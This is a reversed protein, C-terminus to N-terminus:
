VSRWDPEKVQWDVLNKFTSEWTMKKVFEYGPQTYEERGKRGYTQRLEYFGELREWTDNVDVIAKRLEHEGTLYSAVKLLQGRNSGLLEQATTYNTMAVPLRAAFAETIFLGFGEGSTTSLLCDSLNYYLNLKTDDIGSTKTRCKEFLCKHVVGYYKVLRALDHGSLSTQQTNLVMVADKKGKVFKAFAEISAPINKRGCNVANVMVVFKNFLSHGSLEKEPLTRFTHLDIGPYVVKGRFDPWTEMIVSRAFNSQTYVRTFQQLIEVWEPWFPDGDVTLYLWREAPKHKVKEMVKGIYDFYWIDGVCLLIDPKCDNIATCVWSPENRSDRLLPYVYFPLKHKINPHWWGAFSVEHGRQHFRMGIERGVRALGSCIAPSDTLILVKEKKAM